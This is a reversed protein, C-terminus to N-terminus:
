GIRDWLAAVKAIVVAAAAGLIAIAILIHKLLVGGRQVVQRDSGGEGARTGDGDPERPTIQVSVYLAQEALNEIHDCTAVFSSAMPSDSLGASNRGRVCARKINVLLEERWGDANVERVNAWLPGHQPHIPVFAEAKRGTLEAVSYEEAIIDGPFVKSVARVGQISDKVKIFAGSTM